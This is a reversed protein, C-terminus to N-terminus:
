KKRPCPYLKFANDKNWRKSPKPNQLSSDAKFSKKLEQDQPPLLNQKQEKKLSKKDKKM